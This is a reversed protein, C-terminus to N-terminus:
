RKYFILNSEECKEILFTNVEKAKANLKDKRTM